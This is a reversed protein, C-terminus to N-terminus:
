EQSRIRFPHLVPSITHRFHRKPRLSPQPHEALTHRRERITERRWSTARNKQSASGRSENPNEGEATVTM